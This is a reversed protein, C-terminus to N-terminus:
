YDFQYSLGVSSGRDNQPTPITGAPQAGLGSSITTQLKLHRTLDVQVQAQTGGATDQKAGVYLGRSVNKGVEISAGNGTSAGGVALRDLGLSRRAANLPNFGGGGGGLTALGEAVQALEVPTLQSIGQGFLLHALIEDQPMSPSSSLTIKPESAHGAIALKATIAGSGNSAAFDLAPDFSGNVSRGDFTVKGSDINLTKGALDFDGRRLLFGGTVEPRGTTGKIALRGSVEANIGHGRVYLGGPTDITLDVDLTGSHSPVPPVQAIHQNKRRVKLIAVTPPFSEAINVEGGGVSVNGTLALGDRVHGVLKLNANLDASLRDTTLPRADKLTLAVDVPVGPKWVAITGNGSISGHGAHGTLQSVSITGGHAVLRANIETIHFGEIYDQYDANSLVATGSIAPAALTGAFGGDIVASGKLRKGEPGLVPDLASLDVTGKAKLNFQGSANLPADGSISLAVTKGADIRANLTASKGHLMARADVAAALALAQGRYRLGSGKLTVTGGPADPKGTLKATVSFTGDANISPMFPRVLDPTGNKVDIALALDPTAKGAAVISTKGSALRLHDVAVGKAFDFRAPATLKFTEGRYSATLASLQARKASADIMAKAEAKGTGDDKDKFALLATALVANLPGGLGVQADGGYGNSALGKADIRLGLTPKGFPDGVAGDITAHAVSTGSVDLKDAAGHIRAFAKGKSSAIEIVAQLGGKIATGIFVGLDALNGIRLDTKGTLAKANPPLTFGGTAHVSRWDAKSLNIHLVGKTAEDIRAALALPSKDLRGGITLQGHPHKPFSAGRFSAEIPEPAFGRTAVRGNASVTFAFDDPKGLVTGRATLTGALTPATRSLDSLTMAYTLNRDNKAELGSAELKLAAGTLSLKDLKLGADSSSGEIVLHANRALLRSLLANGSADVIGTLNASTTGNAISVFARLQAAGGLPIGMAAALPDVSPLKLIAHVRPQSGLTVDGTLALLPHAGRFEFRPAPIDLRAAVILDVPASAFIRPQSGPVVLGLAHADVNLAGGEGKVNANVAQVSGSGVRLEAIALAGDVDPRKFTGYLRGNFNVSKWSLDPRPVMAGSTADIALAATRGVLNVAGVAKANLAGAHAELNLRENARQGDITADVAVPGLNPLGSLRAALSDEPERLTLTAKLASADVSGATALYGQDGLRMASLVWSADDSSVYHGRGKLSISIDHGVLAKDFDVRAISLSGLDIRFTSKSTSPKSVPFRLVQAHVATVSRIEARNHVLSWASWDLTAGDIKLWVGNDDSVAIHDAKLSDPFTGALGEIEVQDGSFIGVAAAIERRGLWTDSLLYTLVIAVLPAGILVGVIWAGWFLRRDTL